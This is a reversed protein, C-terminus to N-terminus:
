REQVCILRPIAAAPSRITVDPAGMKWLGFKDVKIEM